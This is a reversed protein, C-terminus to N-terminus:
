SKSAADPRADLAARIAALDARMGISQELSTFQALQTVFEIPDSPQLPNQNQLQAVLLKLFTNTDTLAGPTAAAPPSTHDAKSVRSLDIPNM